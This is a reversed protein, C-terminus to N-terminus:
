WKFQEMLNDIMKRTPMHRELVLVELVQVNFLAELDKVFSELKDVSPFSDSM